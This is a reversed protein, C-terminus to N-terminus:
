TAPCRADISGHVLDSPVHAPVLRPPALPLKPSDTIAVTKLYQTECVRELRVVPLKELGRAGTARTRSRRTSCGPSGCGVATAASRSCPPWPKPCPSRTPAWRSAWRRILGRRRCPANRQRATRRHVRRNGAPAHHRWRPPSFVALPRTARTSHRSRWTPARQRRRWRRCSRSASGRRSSASSRRRNGSRSTQRSSSAITM